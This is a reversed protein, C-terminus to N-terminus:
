KLLQDNIARIDKCPAQIAVGKGPSHLQCMPEYRGNDRLVPPIKTTTPVSPTPISPTPEVKPTLASPKNRFYLYLAVAGLGLWILNKNKM